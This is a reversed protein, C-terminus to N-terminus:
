PLNNASPLAGAFLPSRPNLSRARRLSRRAAAVRGQKTQVRTAVLWLHWDDPARAIARRIATDAVSLRGAQEAVLALQLYPEAAWPQLRIASSAAHLAAVTRGERAAAQSAGIELHTLLPLAAACIALWAVTITAAGLAVFRRGRRRPRPRRPRACTGVVLALGAFAVISVATLEWMWDIGAAVLYGCVLASLGAVAIREEVQLHRLRTAVFFAGAGFPLLLLALGVAGLEGLSELYLSHADQISTALAGHAAWWDAYSGAGRGHIASTRFEDLAADWFQWRGSGSGSLLHAKVYDGHAM